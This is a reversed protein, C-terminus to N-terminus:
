YCVMFGSNTAEIKQRNMEVQFANGFSTSLLASHLPSRTEWHFITPCQIHKLRWIASGPKCIRRCSSYIKQVYASDSTIAKQSLYMSSVYLFNIIVNLAVSKNGYAIYTSIVLWFKGEDHRGGFIRELDNGNIKSSQVAGAGFQM